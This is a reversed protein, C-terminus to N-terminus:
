HRRARVKVKFSMAPGPTPATKTKLVYDPSPLELDFLYFLQAMSMMLLVEALSKGLCTHHGRGYPSYAGPQLHEARPRAYRDIDFVEADPYFADQFHPVATGLYIMEGEHIRCGGFSFDKNAIRIQAVAIPYLRMTEMIAGYLAPMSRMYDDENIPQADMVADVEAQVRRLVEPHKLVTYVIASTTNAVTDLGAVYPGAMLMALDSEPILEPDRQHADMIDDILTKYEDPTAISKSRYDRVMQRGLELMRAKARRYRPLKMLFKPRQQTVLVNLIYLITTRIDKVYERPSQGTLATGLQDVVLFQMAEVVPVQSGVTWDRLLTDRTIYLMNQYRGKIAEKSFGRKMVTRLAKHMEGDEASLMKSAGFEKYLPEWAERSRLCDRGERTGMFTAAEAGAIVTLQNGFVNVRYVPGYDRYCRAFFRAPDRAMPLTSGILPLGRVLPPVRDSSSPPTTQSPTPSLDLTDSTSM